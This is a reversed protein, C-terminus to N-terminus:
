LRWQCVVVMFEHELLILSVGLIVIRRDDPSRTSHASSSENRVAWLRETLDHSSAVTAWSLCHMAVLHGSKLVLLELGSGLLSRSKKRPLIRSSEWVSSLTPRPEFEGCFTEDTM